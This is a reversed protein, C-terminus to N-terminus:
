IRHLVFFYSASLAGLLLAATSSLIAFRRWGKRKGATPDDSNCSMEVSTVIVPVRGLVTVGAPLEWEGLLVGARLERGLAAAIGLVIGFAVTVASLLERKPKFPKSPPRAPDLIRFTEAKRRIELDSAMEAEMKKGLLANYYNKSFEYDRKLEAMEQERLPLQELRQQYSALDRLIQTHDAARTQLDRKTGSLQAQLIGLREHIRAREAAQPDPTTDVTPVPLPKHESAARAIALKQAAEDQRELREIVAIRSRLRKVEPHEDSYRPRIEALQSELGDLEKQYKGRIEPAIEAEEQNRGSASAVAAKPKLREEAAEDSSVESELLAKQQQARNIADQNGQLEVQLKTFIASLSNEQEPLEGNHQLKYRSVAAEQQDLKTKAERLETEIFDTTGSTRMERTRINQEIYIDTISNVVQAVLTPDPGQYVIRFAGPHTGGIGKELTIELDKQMLAIIEEPTRTKREVPYLNCDNIIKQLRTSSRMEQSITALLDQADMNVTSVVFREPIKQPDVLVLAEAKYVSPLRWIFTIGTAIAAVTISLSLLKHKWVSRALSLPSFEPKPALSRRASTIPLPVTNLPGCTGGPLLIARGPGTRYSM